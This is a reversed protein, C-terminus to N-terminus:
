TAGGFETKSKLMMELLGWFFDEGPYGEIRGIEQGDEVLIFTPTFVVKRAFSLDDPIDKAIDIVRLPAFQGAATKPYIPGLETKWEICYHCGQREVMVLETAQSLAPALLLIIPAIFRFIRQM